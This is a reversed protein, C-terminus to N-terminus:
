PYAFGFKIKVLKKNQFVYVGYYYPINYFKLFPSDGYVPYNGSLNYKLIIKENNRYEQFNNGMKEKFNDISIGLELGKFTKFNTINYLVNYDEEFFENFYMIVFENFEYQYSGEHIILILLETTDKNVYNIHHAKITRTYDLIQLECGLVKRVSSTDSILIDNVGIDVEKPIDKPINQAYLPSIFVSIFLIQILYKVILIGQLNHM